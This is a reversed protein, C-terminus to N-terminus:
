GRMAQLPHDRSGLTLSGGVELRAVETAPALERCCSAFRRPPELLLRAHRRGLGIPLYTGWHIPVAVPPRLAAVAQAAQEPDMHGSGLASGWGWVPLLAVDVPRLETMGTFCETDGAFYIRRGAAEVVFGLAPVPPGIPSRRGDHVAPVALVRVGGIELADGAALEVVERGCRRLSGAGGRPVVVIAARDLARLSPLDLHDRHLHSILVADLRGPPPGLAAHRRLHAVRPRLLPDTLLRASLELLVTSHGLWTLRHPM